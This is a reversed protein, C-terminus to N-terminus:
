NETIPTTIPPANFAVNVTKSETCGLNNTVQLTYSGSSTAIASNTNGPNTVGAPVTWIYTYPGNTIPLNELLTLNDNECGNFDDISFIIESFDVDYVLGQLNNCYDRYQVVHRAPAGSSNVIQQNNTSGGPVWNYNGGTNPAELTLSSGNCLLFRSPIPTVRVRHRNFLSGTGAGLSMQVDTNGNFFQLINRTVEKRLVGNFYVSLKQSTPNIYDWEVRVNHWAGDEINNSTSSAPVANGGFRGNIRDGDRYFMIHDANIENSFSNNYTDFEIIVSENTNAVGLADGFSIVNTCIAASHLMFGIGDGQADNTGLNLQFEWTHDQTLDFLLKSTIRGARFSAAPTLEYEEFSGVTTGLHNSNGRTVFSHFQSYGKHSVIMFLVLFVFFLNPRTVLNMKVIITHM